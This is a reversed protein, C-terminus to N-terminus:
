RFPYIILDHYTAAEAGPNEYSHPQNAEFLISDGAALEEDRDGVHMRLTGALVVVLERTGPGHAESEHRARPALRLEYVEVQHSGASPMLPRSELQRDSSRLVQKDSRRLISVDTRENGLLQAFPIGLGSAVKWLIGLSPNSKRSEIQSLGARSVGTQQALQDLSLERRRRHERLNVAVRAALEAVGGEDGRPLAAGRLSSARAGGNSEISRASARKRV